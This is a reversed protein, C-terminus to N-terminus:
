SMCRMVTQWLAHRGEYAKSTDDFVVAVYNQM